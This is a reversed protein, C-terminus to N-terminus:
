NESLWNWVTGVSVGLEAAIARISHGAARMLRASARKDESAARRVEGSAQGGKRGRAACWARFGSESFKEWAFDAVHKAVHFVELDGLPGSLSHWEGGVEGFDGNMECAKGYVHQQWFLYNHSTGWFRRIASYSWVRLRDFLTCNRGYGVNEVRLGRRPMHRPLDVWEALEGLEWTRAPGWLLRWQGHLPNKSFHTSANFAPDAGLKARMGAEIAALYRLPADKAGDGTLVPAALPWGLHAHGNAPNTAAWAPPPLNGDEWALAGGPRDVDHVIWMALRPPNIKIYPYRRLMRPTCRRLVPPDAKDAKAQAYRPLPLLELQEPQALIADM